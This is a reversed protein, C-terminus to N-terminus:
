RANLENYLPYLPNPLGFGGASELLTGTTFSSLESAFFLVANAIEVPQGIRNMPITKLFTDTFEKSMNNKVADTATMGPLVANCRINDKAHQVAIEKTLFNVVAKATAYATGSIDPYKGGVSSINIISGGGTKQMSKIAVASSVYVARANKEIIRIFDDFSTHLIDFDVKVDTSGFNNVLVDVRGEKKIVEEVYTTFTEIKLADFYVTDAQGGAAIIEKCVEQGADLNRVALYVKAGNEALTKVTQLGIGKTSSTVIAIKNELLKM